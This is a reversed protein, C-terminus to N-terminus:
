REALGSNLQTLKHVDPKRLDGDCLVVSKGMEAIKVALNSFFMTKGDSPHPSTNLVVRGRGTSPQNFLRTRIQRFVECAPANPKYFALLEPDPKGAERAEKKKKATADKLASKFSPLHTLIPVRLSRSIESPSRFTADCVDVLYALGFGVVFGLAFGFFAFKILNPYVAAYNLSPESVNLEHENVNSVLALSELSQGFNQHMTKLSELAVKRAELGERYENMKRVDGDHSRMYEEIKMQEETLQQVHQRVANLYGRFFDPYDISGVKGINSIKSQSEEYKQEALALLNKHEVVRPHDDAYQGQLATLEAKLKAIDARDQQQASTVFMSASLTETDQTGRATVLMQNLIPDEDSAGLMAILEPTPVDEIERGMLSDELNNLRTNWRLIELDIAVLGESMKILSTLLPNNEENGIYTIETNNVFDLLDKTKAEIEAELSAQHKEIEKRVFESKQNYTAHFYKQFEDVVVQVILQAEEPDLAVCSVVIVNAEEFDRGKGGKKVSLMKKLMDIVVAKERRRAKAEDTQNAPTESETAVTPEEKSSADIKEEEASTATTREAALKANLEVRREFGQYFNPVDNKYQALLADGVPALIADSLLVTSLTEINDIQSQQKGAGQTHDYSRILASASASPFYIEASSEYEKPTTTYKYVALAGGIITMLAVIWIQRKLIGLVDFFNLDREGGGGGQPVPAVRQQNRWMTERPARSRKASQSTTGDRQTSPSTSSDPSSSASNNKWLPANGQSGNEITM